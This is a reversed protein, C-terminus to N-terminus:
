KRFLYIHILILAISFSIHNPYYLKVNDLRQRLLKLSINKNQLFNTSYLCKIGFAFNVIM